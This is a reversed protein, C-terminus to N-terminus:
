RPAGQPPQSEGTRTNEPPAPFLTDSRAPAVDQRLGGSMSQVYAVLQWVQDEPIHGGFSPMGNRRGKMITDFISAPDGGYRWENDMLPPGIGGGGAGGHCNVCNFWIYLRKGQAVAYANDRYPSTNTAAQKVGDDRTLGPQISSERPVTENSSSNSVPTTFRRAERECAALAVLAALALATGARSV